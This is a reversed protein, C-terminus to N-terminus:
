NVVRSFHDDDQILLGTAVLAKLADGAKERWRAIPARGKAKAYAEETYAYIRDKPLGLGDMDEFRSVATDFADLVIGSWTDDRPPPPGAQVTLGFPVAVPVTVVSPVGDADRGAIEVPHLRFGLKLQDSGDRMKTVELVRTAGTGHVYLEADAAARLSSHGRAGLAENKGTHTVILVLAGTAATIAGAARIVGTMDAASNEDGSMSRNLTDLVILGVPHPQSKAAEVVRVVDVGSLLDIAEPVLGFPATALSCEHHMAYADMRGAFGSSGEAAVYM